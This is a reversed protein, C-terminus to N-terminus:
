HNLVFNRKMYECSIKEIRALSKSLKGWRVNSIVGELRDEEVIDDLDVVSVSNNKQWVVVAKWQSM